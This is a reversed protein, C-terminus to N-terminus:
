PCSRRLLRCTAERSYTSRIWPNTPSKGDLRGISHLLAIGDDKLNQRLVGFFTDYDRLGVHEFMGVSVIRDFTENLARYDQLRFHVHSSLGKKNARREAVKLQETSLTLGTVDADCLDGIYLALGGWGSGIDLVTAGHPVLLKAAIHRKKALQADELDKAEGDFYACSYQRDSDLFLSYIRDDIDYHHHVNRKRSSKRITLGGDISHRECHTVSLAWKLCRCTRCTEASCSSCIM